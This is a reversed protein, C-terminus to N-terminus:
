KRRIERQRELAEQRLREQERWKAEEAKLQDKARNVDAQNVSGGPEVIVEGNSKIKFDEGTSSTFTHDAGPKFPGKMLTKGATIETGKFVKVLDEGKDLARKIKQSRDAIGLPVAAPSFITALIKLIASRADTSKWISDSSFLLNDLGKFLSGGISLIPAIINLLWITNAVGTGEESRHESEPDTIREGGIGVTSSGSKIIADCKTADGVRSAPFNEIYVSISGQAINMGMHATGASPNGTLVNGAANLLDALGKGGTTIHLVTDVINNSGACEIADRMRAANKKEIFTVCAGGTIKGTVSGGTTGFLWDLGSGVKGGLWYGIFAGDIVDAIGGLVEGIKGLRGVKLISRVGVQAVKKGGGTGVILLIEVAVGLEFGARKLAPAFVNHAIPDGQRAAAPTV